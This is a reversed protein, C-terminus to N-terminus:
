ECDSYKLTMVTDKNLLVTNGSELMIEGVDDAIVRVEIFLERPPEVSSTM